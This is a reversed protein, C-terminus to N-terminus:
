ARLYDGQWSKVREKIAKTTALRGALVERVLDPLEADSAFRLAVYQQRTLEHVRARLDAPLVEHLRLRMELRIVRDQVTTVMVRTLVALVFLAAAVLVGFGSGLTPARWLYRVANLFNALLVPLVFFHFPPFWRVHTKYSQTEPMLAEEPTSEVASSAKPLTM